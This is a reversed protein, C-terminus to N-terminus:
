SAFSSWSAISGFGNSQTLFPPWSLVVEVIVNVYKTCTMCAQALMPRGIM